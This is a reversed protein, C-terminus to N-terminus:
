EWDLLHLVWECCMVLHLHPLIQISRHRKAAFDAVLLSEFNLRINWQFVLRVERFLMGEQVLIELVRRGWSLQYSLVAIM